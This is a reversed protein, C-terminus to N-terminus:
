GSRCRTGVHRDPLIRGHRLFDDGDHPHCVSELRRLPVFPQSETDDALVSESRLKRAVDEELAADNVQMEGLVFPVCSRVREHVEPDVVNVRDGILEPAVDGLLRPPPLDLQDVRVPVPQPDGGADLASRGERIVWSEM